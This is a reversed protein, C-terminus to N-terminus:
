LRLTMKLHLSPLNVCPFRGRTKNPLLQLAWQSSNSYLHRHCVTPYSVLNGGGFLLNESHPLNLRKQVVRVISINMHRASASGLACCNLGAISLRLPIAPPSEKQLKWWRSQAEASGESKYFEGPRRSKEGNQLNVPQLWSCHPRLLRNRRCSSFLARYQIWALASHNAIRWAAFQSAFMSNPPFWPWRIGAHWRKQAFPPLLSSCFYAIAAPPVERCM